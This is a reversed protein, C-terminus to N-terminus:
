CLLCFIFLDYSFNNLMVETELSRSYSLRKIDRTKKQFCSIYYIYLIYISIKFYLIYIYIRVLDWPIDTYRNKKQWSIPTDGMKLSGNSSMRDFSWPTLAFIPPNPGGFLQLNLWSFQYSLAHSLYHIKWVSRPPQGNPTGRWIWTRHNGPLGKFFLSSRNRIVEFGFALTGKRAPYFRAFTSM